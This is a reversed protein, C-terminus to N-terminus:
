QEPAAKSPLSKRFWFTAMSEGTANQVHIAEEDLLARIGEKLETPLAVKESKIKPEDDAWLPAVVLLATVLAAFLRSMPVEPRFGSFTRAGTYVPARISM